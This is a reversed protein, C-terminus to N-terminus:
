RADFNLVFLLIVDFASINVTVVVNRNGDGTLAISYEILCTVYLQPRTGKALNIKPNM